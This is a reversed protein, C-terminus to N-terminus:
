ISRLLFFTGATVLAIGVIRYIGLSEKLFVFSLVAVLVYALSLMPYMFSVDFKTLAAVWVVFGIVYLLLGVLIYPSESFIKPWNWPKMIDSISFKDNLNNVGKKLSIQAFAGGIIAIALLIFAMAVMKKEM